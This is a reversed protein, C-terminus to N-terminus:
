KPVAKPAVTNWQSITWSSGIGATLKTPLMTAADVELTDGIINTLTYVGGNQEVRSFSASIIGTVLDERRVSPRTDALEEIVAAPGQWVGANSAAHGAETWIAADANIYYQGGTVVMAEHAGDGRTAEFLYSSDDFQGEIVNRVTDTQGQPQGSGATRELRASSTVRVASVVRNTIETASPASASPSSSSATPRSSPSAKSVTGKSDSSCGAVLGVSLLVGVAALASRLKMTRWPTPAHGLGGSMPSTAPPWLINLVHGPGGSERSVSIKVDPRCRKTPVIGLWRGGAGFARTLGTRM